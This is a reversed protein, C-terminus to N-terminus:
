GDGGIAECFLVTAIRQLYGNGPVESWWLVQKKQRYIVIETDEREVDPTFRIKKRGIRSTGYNTKNKFVGGFPVVAREVALLFLPVWRTKYWSGIRRGMHSLGATMVMCRYENPAETVVIRFRTLIM